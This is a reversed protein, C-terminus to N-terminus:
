VVARVRSADMKFERTLGSLSYPKLERVYARRM